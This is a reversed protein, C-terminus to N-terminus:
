YCRQYGTNVGHIEVRGTRLTIHIEEGYVMASVVDSNHAVAKIYAGNEFLEVRGNSNVKVSYNKM